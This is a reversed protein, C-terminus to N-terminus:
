AETFDYRTITEAIIYQPRGKSNDFTRFVYGGIIGCAVITLSHGIAGLLVLTTYGPVQIWNMVSAFVTLVGLFIFFIASMLGVVLIITIPAGTFGYISDSFLRIKRLLTYSSKGSTRAKRHFPIYERDFGIWQVQSLINTNLEPLSVLADKARKSLGFVDFGGKPTDNKLFTRNVWWYFAAFVKMLFPDERSARQGLAVDLGDVIIKDAFIEFLEVPEQLDSGFVVTACGGSKELGAKLAPGVGFNRSLRIIQSPFGLDKILAPLIYRENEPSGDIVFTAIIGGPVTANLHEIYPVLNQIHDQSKFLPVVVALHPGSNLGRGCVACNVQEASM